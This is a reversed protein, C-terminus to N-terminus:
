EVILSKVVSGKADTVKVSYQGAVSPKNIQIETSAKLSEFVKSDVKRGLVDL